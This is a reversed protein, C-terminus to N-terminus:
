KIVKDARALVNPPITLGIQKAAKLNIVLEFKTPQEVPLEAPKAGKLIKDVYVAARLYLDDFNTGYSMLGGAGMNDRSGYIAPLRSNSALDAIRKLHTGFLPDGLVILAQPRNKKIVTFAHEIDDVGKAELPLLTVRLASAVAQIEKLQPPNTPNGPNLLVAVRSASPVVEKLLELRKTVVGFNFDSLGTINGGPRALSAVLGTGVPDAANGIVIPIVRTANKAAHAAPAGEAVIVDVKLRVLEGAMQPLKDFQGGASRLEILINKDKLYGLERLGQQFAGLRSELRQGSSSALFGIRSVKTEQQAEILSVLLLVTPLLFGVIRRIM